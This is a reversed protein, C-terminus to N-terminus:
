GSDAVPPRWLHTARGPSHLKSAAVIDAKGFGRRQCLRWMWDNHWQSSHLGPEFHEWGSGHPRILLNLYEGFLAATPSSHIDAHTIKAEVCLAAVFRYRTTPAPVDYKQASFLVMWDGPKIAGRVDPRCVGWTVPGMHFSAAFFSLDDGIDYPFTEQALTAYFARAVGSPSDPPRRRSPALYAAAYLRPM